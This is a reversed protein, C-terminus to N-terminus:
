KGPRAVRTIEERVLREVLGPLNEDLWAKLLPRLCERTIEDLTREGGPSRGAVAEALRDFAAHAASAAHSSLLDDPGDIGSTAAPPTPREPPCPSQQIADEEWLEDRREPSPRKHVGPRAAAVPREAHRYPTPGAKPPSAAAPKAQFPVQRAPEPKDATPKAPEPRAQEPRAANTEASGPRKESAPPVPPIRGGELDDISPRFRPEPHAAALAEPSAPVTEAAAACPAKSGRHWGTQHLRALAEELRVDGGLLGAFNDQGNAARARGPHSASDGSARIGSASASAASAAGARQEVPAEVPAEVPTAGPAEVPGRHGGLAKLGADGRREQGQTAREPRSVGPAIGRPRETATGTAPESRAAPRSHVLTPTGAKGAPGDSEVREHIAQRISALLEDISPQRAAQTKGIM